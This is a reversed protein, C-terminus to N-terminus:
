HGTLGAKKSLKPGLSLGQRLLVLCTAEQSVCAIKLYRHVCM